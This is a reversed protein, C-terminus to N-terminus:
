VVPQVYDHRQLVIWKMKWNTVRQKLPNLPRCIIIFLNIFLLHIFAFFFFSISPSTSECVKKMEEREDALEEIIEQSRPTSLGVSDADVGLQRLRQEFENKAMLKTSIKRPKKKVNKVTPKLSSEDSGSDVTHIDAQCIVMKHKGESESSWDSDSEDDIEVTNTTRKLPVIDNKTENINGSEVCEKANKDIILDDNSVGIEKVTVNLSEENHELVEARKSLSPASYKGISEEVIEKVTEQINNMYDKQREDLNRFSEIFQNQSQTYMAEFADFKQAMFEIKDNTEELKNDKSVVEQPAEKPIKAIQKSNLANRLELIEQKLENIIEYATRDLDAEQKSQQEACSASGNVQDATETDNIQSVNTESQKSEQKDTEIQPVAEEECQVAVSSSSLKSKKSCETCSEKPVENNKDLARQDQKTAQESDNIYQDLEIEVPTKPKPADKVINKEKSSNKEKENDDSLEHKEDFTSHKRQQHSRLSDATLFNKTCQDCPFLSTAKVHNEIIQETQKISRNNGNSELM